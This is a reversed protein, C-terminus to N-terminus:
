LLGYGKMYGISSGETVRGRVEGEVVGKRERGRTGKEGESGRGDYTNEM